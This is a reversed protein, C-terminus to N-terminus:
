LLQQELESELQQAAKQLEAFLTEVDDLKGLRANDEITLALEQARRAAFHNVAGKYAHAANSIVEAENEQIATEVSTLLTEHRQLFLKVLDRLLEMDGGVYELALQEDWVKESYKDPVDIAETKGDEDHEPRDVLDSLPVDRVWPRLREVLVEPKIPKSIFDDMGVALCREKTSQLTNATVAIITQSAEGTKRERDRIIEAAEFGSMEPMQIDLLVLDYKKNATKKVAGKGDSVTDVTFGIRKLIAEGVRQNIPEDDVLLVTGHLRNKSDDLQNVENSIISQGSLEEYFQQLRLPKYIVGSAGEEILQEELGADRTLLYIQPKNEGFFLSIYQFFDKITGLILYYDILLIDPSFEENCIEGLQSLIDGEGSVARSQVSCGKLYQDIITRSTECKDFIVIKKNDLEACPLVPLKESDKVFEMTFWFTAGVDLKSKVGLKGNQLEVLNKCVSLGLGTGGYKRTTSEDAQTFMEFLNSVKAAAIGIGTDKVTFLLQQKTKGSKVLEVQLSVEGVDTFKIANNVLNTIVQRLRTPDGIVQSPIDLPMYCLLEIGKSNAADSYLSLSEEVIERLDFSIAEFHIVGAEIKSFDLIDNIILMLSDASRGAVNLLKWSDGRRESKQLLSLVGIIGNMPTRIEHSMNALFDSKAKSSALARDREDVLKATREQVLKEVKENLLNESQESHAVELSGSEVREEKGQSNEGSDQRPLIEDDNKLPGFMFFMVAAALSAFFILAYCIWRLVNKNGDSYLILIGLPKKGTLVFQSYQFRPRFPWGSAQHKQLIIPQLTKNKDAKFSARISGDVGYLEMSNIQYKESFDALTEEVIDFLGQQLPEKIAETTLEAVVDLRDYATTRSLEFDSYLSFFVVLVLCSLIVGKIFEFKKKSLNKKQM